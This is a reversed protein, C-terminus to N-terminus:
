DSVSSETAPPSNSSLGAPGSVRRVADPETVVQNVCTVSELTIM